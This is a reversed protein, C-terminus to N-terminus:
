RPHSKYISFAIMLNEFLFSVRAMTGIFFSLLIRCSPGHSLEIKSQVGGEGVLNVQLQAYRAELMFICEVSVFIDPGSNFGM